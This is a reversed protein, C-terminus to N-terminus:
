TAFTSGTQEPAAPADDAPSSSRSLSLILWDAACQLSVFSDVTHWSFVRWVVGVAAQHQYCEEAIVEHGSNVQKVLEVMKFMM